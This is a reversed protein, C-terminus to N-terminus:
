TGLPHEAAGLLDGARLAVSRLARELLQLNAQPAEPRPAALQAEVRAAVPDDPAKATLRELWHRVLRETEVAQTKMMREALAPNAQWLAPWSGRRELAARLKQATEAQAPTRATGTRSSLRYVDGENVVVRHEPAVVSAIFVGGETDGRKRFVEAGQDLLERLSMSMLAGRGGASKAAVFPDLTWEYADLPDRHDYTKFREYDGSRGEPILHGTLQLAVQAPDRAGIGRYVRQELLPDDPDLKSLPVKAYEGTKGPPLSADLQRNRRLREFEFDLPQDWRVATPAEGAFQASVSAANHTPGDDVGLFRISLPDVTLGPTKAGRPVRAQGNLGHAGARGTTELWHIELITRVERAPMGLAQAVAGITGIRQAPPIESLQGEAAGFVHRLAAREVDIPFVM